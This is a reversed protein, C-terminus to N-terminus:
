SDWFSLAHWYTFGLCPRRRPRAGPSHECQKGARVTKRFLIPNAVLVLLLPLYTTVYHPITHELGRECRSSSFRTITSPTWKVQSGLHSSSLLLIFAFPVGACTQQQSGLSVHTM